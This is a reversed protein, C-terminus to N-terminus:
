HAGCYLGRPKAGRVINSFIARTCGTCVTDTHLATNHLTTCHATCRLPSRARSESSCDPFPCNFRCAPDAAPELSLIEIDDDTQEKM